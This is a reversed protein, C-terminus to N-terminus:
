PETPRPGAQAQAARVAHYLQVSLKVCTQDLLCCTIFQGSFVWLLHYLVLFPLSGARCDEAEPRFRACLVSAKAPCSLYQVLHRLNGSCTMALYLM